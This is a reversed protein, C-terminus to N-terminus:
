RLAMLEFPRTTGRGESATTGEFVCTGVYVQATEPTPMNPSPLVWPLGTDAYRSDPRWRRMTVVELDEVSAGADYARRAERAYDEVSYPIAECQARTTVAGSM